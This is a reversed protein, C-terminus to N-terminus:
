VACYQQTKACPSFGAWTHETQGVRWLCHSQRIEDTLFVGPSGDAKGEPRYGTATFEYFEFMVLIMKQM